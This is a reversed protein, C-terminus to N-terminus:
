HTFVVDNVYMYNSIISTNNSNNILYKINDSNSVIKVRTQNAEYSFSIKSFYSVFQDQTIYNTINNNQIANIANYVNRAFADKFRSLRIQSFSTVSQENMTQKFQQSVIDSNVDFMIPSVTTSIIIESASVFQFNAANTANIDGQVFSLNALPDVTFKFKVTNNEYNNIETPIMEVGIISTNINSGFLKKVLKDSYLQMDTNKQINNEAIFQNLLDFTQDNITNDQHYWNVNTLYLKSTKDGLNFVYPYNSNIIITITNHEVNLIANNPSLTNGFVLSFFRDKYNDMLVPSIIQLQNVAQQFRAALNTTDILGYPQYFTINKIWLIKNKYVKNNRTVDHIEISNITTDNLQSFEKNVTEKIELIMRYYRVNNSQSVYEVSVDVDNSTIYNEIKDTTSGPVTKNIKDFILSLVYQQNLLNTSNEIQYNEIIQNIESTINPNQIQVIFPNIPANVHVKIINNAYEIGNNNSSPLNVRINADGLNITITIPTSFQNYTISSPNDIAVSVSMNQGNTSLVPTSTNKVNGFAKLINEKNSDSIKNGSIEDTNINKSDFINQIKTSIDSTNLNDMVYTPFQLNKIKLTLRDPSIEINTPQQVSSSLKKFLYKKYKSTIELDGVINTGQNTQTVNINFEFNNRLITLLKDPEKANKFMQKFALKNIGNAFPSYNEIIYSSYINNDNIFKQLQTVDINWWNYSKLLVQLDDGLDTCWEIDQILLTKGDNEIVTNEPANGGFIYNFNDNINVKIWNSGYEISFEEVALGTANSILDTLVFSNQNSNLNTEPFVVNYLMINKNLDSQINNAVVKKISNSSTSSSIKTSQACSSLTLGLTTSAAALFLVSLSIATTKRKKNM